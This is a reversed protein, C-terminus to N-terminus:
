IPIDLKGSEDMVVAGYQMQLQGGSSKYTLICSIELRDRKDIVHPVIIEKLFANEISPYQKLLKADFTTDWVTICKGHSVKEVNIHVQASTKDYAKSTYNNGKYIVFSIRKDVPNGEIASKIPKYAFAMVIVSVAVMLWKSYKKM